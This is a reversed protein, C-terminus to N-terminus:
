PETLAQICALAAVLATEAKLIRPGLSVPEAFPLAAIQRVEGPSFGGEPGVLLGLPAKRPLAALRQAIPPADGRELCFILKRDKPWSNLLNELDILPAVEMLDLRESQEAAETAIATLREQNVRHVVTHECLVPLFRSAGLEAAKEVIFDFAEKKVPSAAAWVDPVPAQERIKELFSIVAKKKSLESVEALWEGNRSNFARLRDGPKVRMVNKLYHLQGESLVSTEGRSINERSVFLRLLNKHVDTM